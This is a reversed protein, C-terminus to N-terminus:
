DASLTPSAENKVEETAPFHDEFIIQDSNQFGGSVVVSKETRLEGLSMEPM